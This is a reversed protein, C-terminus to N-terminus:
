EDTGIIKRIADLPIIGEPKPDIYQGRYKYYLANFYVIEVREAEQIEYTANSRELYPLERAKLKAKRYIDLMEETQKLEKKLRQVGTFDLGQVDGEGKRMERDFQGIDQKNKVFLDYDYFRSPGGYITKLIPVDSFRVTPLDSSETTLLNDIFEEPNNSALLRQAKREAISFAAKGLGVGEEVFDGAGGWYSQLIYYYPDPNVDYGRSINDTGGTMENLADAADQIWDPSRFSLTNEPVEAGFPYQTRRVVGGFYTENFAFADLPAKAITPTISKIAAGGLTGSHGMAIPSFSSHASLGFFTMADWFEREGAAVEALIMGINNFLNYGYGLPVNIYNKGDVGIIFGREKKYDAIKNYFLEDDEDRDSLAMNIMTQMASLLVMGAALKRPATVRKKWAPAEDPNNPLQEKIGSFTRSFRSLGQVSANFFLFNANLSPGWEGSKNFNVTINKSLQAARAASVGAKRAEIYASLRIANEFAENIGAVYEFFQGPKKFVHEAGKRLTGKTKAKKRLNDVVNNIADSYSFGTRGGSAKWEEIYAAMEPSIDKGFAAENLLAKLSSFSGKIMNKTFDKTDLDYGTLIGGENELEALVNFVAGHLDRFFNGVFFAPNYQTFANRMLNMPGSMIKFVSNLKEQTMGNLADAYDTKKFYIFHQEGNIRIPVFHRDAKMQFMTMPVKNGKDDITLKANNASYVNWVKENPNNKVLNYLPLMAQDKRARQQVAANQMIVNAILNVGTKSARGKAAKTTKGYVSMGAGGTPYYNESDEMEDYALGSLPVYNDYLSEWAEIRERTELGGELMTERTNKVVEYVLNAVRVMDPSELEEIIDNAEQTTMGSGNELEPRLNSIFKNREEAHKAYLYDSVQEATLDSEAMANMILELRAELAEIDTRVMGYMRDMALEFDQSEPVKSKRFAEIDQQLLMVGSYKDQFKIALKEILAGYPTAESKEWSSNGENYIRGPLRRAELGDIDAQSLIIGFESTSRKGKRKEKHEQVTREAEEVGLKELTKPDRMINTLSSASTFGKFRFYTVPNSTFVAREYGINKAADGFAPLQSANDVERVAKSERVQSPVVFASALVMDNVEANKFAPDNIANLIDDKNIGLDRKDNSLTNLLTTLFKQRPDNTFGLQTANDLSKFVTLFNKLGKPFILESTRKRIIDESEDIIVQLDGTNKDYGLGEQNKSNMIREFEASVGKRKLGQNIAKALALGAGIGYDSDIDTSSAKAWKDLMTLVNAFTGPSNFSNEPKAVTFITIYHKGEANVISNYVSRMVSGGAHNSIINLKGETFKSLNEAGHAGSTNNYKHSSKRKGKGLPKFPLSIEQDSRERAYRHVNLVIDSADLNNDKQYQRLFEGFTAFENTGEPYSGAADRKELGGLDLDTGSFVDGEFSEGAKLRDMREDAAALEEKNVMHLDSVRRQYSESDKPLLQWPEGYIEVEQMLRDAKLMFSEPTKQGSLNFLEPYDSKFIIAKAGKLADFDESTFGLERLAMMNAIAIHEIHIQEELEQIRTKDSWTAGTRGPEFDSYNFYFSYGVREEVDKEEYIDGRQKRIEQLEDILLQKREEELQPRSVYRQVPGDKWFHMAEVNVLRVEGTAPDTYKWPMWEGRLNTFRTSKGGSTIYPYSNFFHQRNRFEKSNFKGVQQRPNTEHYKGMATWELTFPKNEPLNWVSMPKRNELGEIETSAEEKIGHIEQSLKETGLTVKEKRIFKAFKAAIQIMSDARGIQLNDGFAKNDQFLKFMLSEIGGTIESLKIDLAEVAGAEGGEKQVYFEGGAVAELFENIIEKELNEKSYDSYKERTGDLIRKISGNNNAISIIEAVLEERKATDNVIDRLAFHGVEHIMDAIVEEKVAGEGTFIHIEDTMEQDREEQTAEKYLANQNKSVSRISDKTKHIIVKVEGKGRKAFGAAILDLENLGEEGQILEGQDNVELEVYGDKPTSSRWDGVGLAGKDGTYNAADFSNFQIIDSIAFMRELLNNYEENFEKRAEDTLQTTEEMFEEDLEFNGHLNGESDRWTNDEQKNFETKVAELYRLRNDAVIMEAILDWRGKEALAQIGAQNRNFSIDAKAMLDEISKVADQQKKTLDKLTLQGDPSKSTEEYVVSLYESVKKQDSRSLGGMFYGSNALQRKFSLAAMENFKDPKFMRQYQARANFIVNSGGGFFQGVNGGILGSKHMDAMFEENSYEIGSTVSYNYKQLGETLAEALYEEAYGLRSALYTGGVFELTKRAASYKGVSTVEYPLLQGGKYVKGDITIGGKPARRQLVKPTGKFINYPNVRNTLRNLGFKGLGFFTVGGIFEGLMEAGGHKFAYGRREGPTLDKMNPDNFSRYYAEAGTTYGLFSSQVLAPLVIGGGPVILSSVIGLGIGTLSTPLSEIGPLEIEQFDVDEYAQNLIRDYNESLHYGNFLTTPDLLDLQEATIAYKNQQFKLDAVKRDRQEQRELFLNRANEPDFDKGYDEFGFVDEMLPEMVNEIVFSGISTNAADLQNKMNVVGIEWSLIRDQNRTNREGVTSDKDLFLAIDGNKFGVTKAFETATKNFHLDAFIKSELDKIYDDYSGYGLEEILEASMAGSGSQQMLKRQEETLYTAGPLNLSFNLAWEEKSLAVNELVYNDFYKRAELSRATNFYEESFTGDDTLKAKEERIKSELNDIQEQPVNGYKRVANLRQLEKNLKEINQEIVKVQEEQTSLIREDIMEIFSNIGDPTPDVGLDTILFNGRNMITGNSKFATGTKQLELNSLDLKGGSTALDEFLQDISDPTAMRLIKQWALDAQGGEKYFENYSDAARNYEDVSGFGSMYEDYAESVKANYSDVEEKSPVFRKTKGTPQLGSDTTFRYDPMYSVSPKPGAKELIFENLGSETPRAQTLSSFDPISFGLIEQFQKPLTGWDIEYANQSENQEQTDSVTDLEDSVSTSELSPDQADLDLGSDM